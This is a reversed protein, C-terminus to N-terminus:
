VALELSFEAMYAIGYGGLRLYIEDKLNVNYKLAQM